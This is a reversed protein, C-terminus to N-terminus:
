QVSLGKKIGAIVGKTSENLWDDKDAFSQARELSDLHQLAKERSDKAEGLGVRFGTAYASAQEWAQEYRQKDSLYTNAIVVFSQQAKDTDAGGQEKLADILEQRNWEGVEKGELAQAVAQRAGNIMLADANPTEPILAEAFRQNVKEM